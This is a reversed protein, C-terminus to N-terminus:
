GNILKILGIANLVYGIVFMLLWYIDSTTIEQDKSVGMGGKLMLITGLFM